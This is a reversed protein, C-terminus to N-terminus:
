ISPLFRDLASTLGAETLPEEWFALPARDPGFLVTAPLSGTWQPHVARVFADDGGRKLYAPFPAGQALLFALAEERQSPPDATILVTGLGRARYRAVARLLGPMEEVCPECWTSWVNVLLYPEDRAALMASFRDPHLDLLVTPDETAAVSAAPAESTGCAALLLALLAGARVM